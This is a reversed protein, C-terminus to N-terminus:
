RARLGDLTMTAVDDALATADPARGPALWETLSNVCGFILRATVVPDVGALLDGDAVAQRVLDAALRDIRRRRALAQREVASNGRVRLLLTVYPLREVLVAISGRILAELRQVAPADLARIEAVVEELGILARDLALALLADKSEVHHYVASKGVGLRRALEDISTGDFGRETFAVVSTALVSELDHGPRGRRRAVPPAPPTTVLEARAATRLRAHAGSAFDSM